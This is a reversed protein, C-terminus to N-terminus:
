YIQMYRMWKKDIHPLLFLMLMDQFMLQKSEQPKDETILSAADSALVINDNLSNPLGALLLLFLMWKKM